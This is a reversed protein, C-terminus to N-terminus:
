AARRLSGYLVETAAPPLFEAHLRALHALVAAHLPVDFVVGASRRKTWVVRGCLGEMGEPRIVVLDGEHLVLSHSEYRCGQTSLDSIVGGDSFGSRTRCQAPLVVSLREALRGANDQACSSMERFSGM